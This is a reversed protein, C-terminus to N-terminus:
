VMPITAHFTVGSAAATFEPGTLLLSLRSPLWVRLSSSRVSIRNPAQLWDVQAFNAGGFVVRLNKLNVWIGYIRLLQPKTPEATEAAWCEWIQILWETSLNPYKSSPGPNCVEHAGPDWHSHHWWLLSFPVFFDNQITQWNGWAM